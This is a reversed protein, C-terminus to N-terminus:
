AIDPLRETLRDEESASVHYCCHYDNQASRLSLFPRSPTFLVLVCPTDDDGDDHTHPPESPMGRILCPALCIKHM